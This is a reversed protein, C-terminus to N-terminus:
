KEGASRDDPGSLAFGRTAAFPPETVAADLGGAIHLAGPVVTAVGAVEASGSHPKYVFHANPHEDRARRELAKNTFGGGDPCLISL